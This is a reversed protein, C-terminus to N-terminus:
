NQTNNILNEIRDKHVEKSLSKKEGIKSDIYYELLQNIILDFNDLVEEIEKNSNKIAIVVKIDDLYIGATSSSSEELRKMENKIKM